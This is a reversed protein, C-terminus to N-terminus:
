FEGITEGGMMSGLAGWVGYPSKGTTAQAASTNGTDINESVFRVAGDGMLVHCGGTHLSSASYIGWGQHGSSSCSPSNPALVTTIGSYFPYGIAWRQGMRHSDMTVNYSNGTVTALCASPNTDLNSINAAVRGLYSGTGGLEREAMLITNSTGDVFDRMRTDSLWGFPGRPNKSSINDNITDGVSLCYSRPALGGEARPPVPSSPCLMIDLHPQPFTAASNPRGGQSPLSSIENWLNAQDLFPLLFVIGSMWSRNGTGTDVLGAGTVDGGAGGKLCPLMRYTESYNHMALGFQKFNNKCQSRRAAERAQQVAPLLLAILIAIIAIVVLLEILTFGRIRNGPPSQQM